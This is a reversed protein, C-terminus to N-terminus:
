YNKYKVFVILLMQLTYVSLNKAEIEAQLINKDRDSKRVSM